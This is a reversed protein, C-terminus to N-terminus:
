LTRHIRRHGVLKKGVRLAKCFNNHNSVEYVVQMFPMM